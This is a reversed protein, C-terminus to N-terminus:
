GSEPNAASELAFSTCDLRGRGCGSGVAKARMCFSCCVGRGRALKAARESSMNLVPGSTVMAACLPVGVSVGGSSGLLSVSVSPPVVAAPTAGGDPAVVPAITAMTPLPDDGAVALAEFGVCPEVAAEDVSGVAPDSEEVLAAASGGAEVSEVDGALPAVGGAM